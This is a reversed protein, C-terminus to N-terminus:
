WVSEFFEDVVPVGLEWQMKVGFKQRCVRFNEKLCTEALDIFLACIARQSWHGINAAKLQIVENAPSTM